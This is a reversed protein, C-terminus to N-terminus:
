QRADQPPEERAPALLVPLRAAGRRRARVRADRRGPRARLRPDDLRPVSPAVALGAQARVAIASVHHAVTDHLDRALHNPM